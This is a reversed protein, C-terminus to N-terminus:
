NHQYVPVAAVADWVDRVAQRLVEPDCDVHVEPLVSVHWAFVPAYADPGEAVRQMLARRLIRRESQDQVELSVEHAVTLMAAQVRDIHYPLRALYASAFLEDM